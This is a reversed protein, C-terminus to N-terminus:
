QNLFKYKKYSQGVVAGTMCTAITGALIAYFGLSVIESRRGPAMTGMCGIMIGLSGPNAFGCMAYIMIKSVAIAAPASIVSAVLIHALVNPVTDRLIAAYLVMVTGAITAMGSTMITFLASTSITELYPRIFLVIALLVQMCLATVITITLVRKQLQDSSEM